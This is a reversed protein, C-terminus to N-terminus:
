GSQDPLYGVCLSALYPIFIYPSLSKLAKKTKRREEWRRGGETGNIYLYIYCLKNKELVCELPPGKVHFCFSTKHIKWAFDSVVM